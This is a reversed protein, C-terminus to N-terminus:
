CSRQRATGSDRSNSSPGSARPSRRAFRRSGRAPCRRPLRVSSRTSRVVKCLASIEVFSIAGPRGLLAQAQVLDVMIANDELSGSARAIGAVLLSRGAVSLRGGANLHLARALESGLVTEDPGVAMRGELEWWSKLAREERFRLGILLQPAGNVEVMGVLKPAVASLRTRHHITRIRDVDAVTLAASDVTLAGLGIAGYALDMTRSAPTVIINAGFRDLEDAIEDQMARSLSVIAVVTGVGLAVAALVFAARARRRKLSAFAVHRVQM